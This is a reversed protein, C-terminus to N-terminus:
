LLTQVLLSLAAVTSIVLVVWRLREGDLHHRLVSSAAFGALAGPLLLLGLKYQDLTAQGTVTLTTLNILLGVLFIVALTSRLEPGQRDRYLMALPPGGIATAASTAGSIVGTAVQSFRNFPISAGRAMVAVAVLVMAGISVDLFTPPLVALLFAGIAAGPLRGAIVWGAGGVSLAQRERLLMLISVFLVSVMVGVPVAEPVLIRLAPATVIAFGIGASGQIVAAVFVVLTALILESNSM